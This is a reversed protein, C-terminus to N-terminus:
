EDSGMDGSTLTLPSTHRIGPYSNRLTSLHASSDSHRCATLMAGTHATHRASHATTVRVACQTMELTSADDVRGKSRAVVVIETDAGAAM